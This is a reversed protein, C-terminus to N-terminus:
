LYSEGPLNLYNRTDKISEEIEAKKSPVRLTYYNKFLTLLDRILIRSGFDFAAIHNPFYLLFCSLMSLKPDCKKTDFM